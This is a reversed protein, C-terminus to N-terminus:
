KYTVISLAQRNIKNQDFDSITKFLFAYKEIYFINHTIHKSNLLLLKMFNKSISITRRGSERDIRTVVRSEKGIYRRRTPVYFPKKDRDSIFYFFHNQSERDTDSRVQVREIAASCCFAVKIASLM